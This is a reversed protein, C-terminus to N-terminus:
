MKADKRRQPSSSSAEIISKASTLSTNLKAKRRAFTFKVRFPFLSRVHCGVPTFWGRRKFNRARLEPRIEKGWLGAWTVTQERRCSVMAYGWDISRTSHPSASSSAQASASCKSRMATFLCSELLSLHMRLKTELSVSTITVDVILPCLPSPICTLM